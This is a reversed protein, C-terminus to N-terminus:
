EVDGAISAMVEDDIDFNAFVEQIDDHDDLSEMMKLMQEAQKGDLHMTTKPLMTREASNIAIKNSDLSSQVKELQDYGTYILYFEEDDTKIDEAGAELTVMFITDEDYNKRSVKILGRKEFMWAVSGSEGLNGGHKSFLHRIEAVTRNKNDTMANIYLAVGGPGYGEYVVEEYIVGPLEGTGKMIANEINKAPMNAARAALVATRLRPNAESDGGGVRASVTLEKILKTFVRGRAADVKAKKHKISHWKSHGSM